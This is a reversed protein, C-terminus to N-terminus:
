DIHVQEARKQWGDTSWAPQENGNKDRLRVDPSREAIIVRKQLSAETWNLEDSGACVKHRIGTNGKQARRMESARMKTTQVNVESSVEKM